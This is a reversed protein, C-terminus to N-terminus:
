NEKIYNSKLIAAAVKRGEAILSNYTRCAAGSDIIELNIKNERLRKKVAEPIQLISKGTGVILLEIKNESKENLDLIAALMDNFLEYNNSYKWYELKDFYLIVNENIRKDDIVFGEPYYSKILKTSSNILPTVDLSM